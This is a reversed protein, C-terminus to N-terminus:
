YIPSQELKSYSLSKTTKLIMQTKLSIFSFTIILIVRQYLNNTIILEEMTDVEKERIIEKMTELLVEKMFEFKLLDVFIKEFM